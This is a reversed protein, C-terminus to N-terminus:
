RSGRWHVSSVNFTPSGAFGGYFDDEWLSATSLCRWDELLTDHVCAYMILRSHPVTRQRFNTLDQMQIVTHTCALGARAASEKCRQEDHHIFETSAGSAAIRSRGGWFLVFITVFARRVKVTLSLRERVHRTFLKIM